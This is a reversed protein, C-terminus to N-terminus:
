VKIEVELGLLDKYKELVPKVDGEIFVLVKQSKLNFNLDSM